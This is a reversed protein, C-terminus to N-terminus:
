EACLWTHWFTATNRKGFLVAHLCASTLLMFFAAFVVDSFFHAGMMIRAIGFLIGGGIGGWFFKRSLRRPVAYAFSPLFFGFAGDGSIFSGNKHATTQPVLAPSFATSGGFETVERPRARGWHDKFGANAILGPGIVLALFLFAWGKSDIGLVPAKKVFAILTALALAVGLIRAGYYAVHQLFLLAPNGAYVFGQGSTYFLGSILLDINPYMVPLLLAAGFLAISLILIWRRSPM